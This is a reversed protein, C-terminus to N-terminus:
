RLLTVRQTSSWVTGRGAPDETEALAKVVYVGAPLGRGDLRFTHSGAPLAGDHLLGVRRGLVDYLAV